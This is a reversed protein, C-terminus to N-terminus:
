EGDLVQLAKEASQHSAILKAAEYLRFLLDENPYEEHIASSRLEDILQVLVKALVVGVGESTRGKFERRAERTFSLGVNNMITRVSRIQPLFGCVDKCVKALQQQSIKTTKNDISWKQLAIALKMSKDITMVNRSKGLGPLELQKNDSSSMASRMM